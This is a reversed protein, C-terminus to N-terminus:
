NKSKQEEKKIRDLVDDPLRNTRLCTIAEDITLIKYMMCILLFKSVTMKSKTM